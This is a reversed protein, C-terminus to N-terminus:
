NPRAPPGAGDRPPRATPQGSLPLDTPGYGLEVGAHQAAKAAEKIIAKTISRESPFVPSVIVDYAVEGLDWLCRLLRQRATPM